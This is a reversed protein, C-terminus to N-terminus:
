EASAAGRKEKREKMKARKEDGKAKVEEKSILGDNNTDIDQFRVKHAELFEDQSIAGDANTDMKEFRKTKGGGHKGQHKGAKQHGEHHEAMAPMATFALAAGGLVAIALIKKM